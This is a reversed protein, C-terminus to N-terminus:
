HSSRTIFFINFLALYATLTDSDTQQYGLFRYLYIYSCVMIESGNSTKSLLKTSM